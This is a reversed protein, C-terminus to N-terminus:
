QSFLYQWPECLRPHCRRRFDQKDLNWKHAQLVKREDCLGRTSSEVRWRYLKRASSLGNRRSGGEGDHGLPSGVRPCRACSRSSRQTIETVQSPMVMVMRIRRRGVM